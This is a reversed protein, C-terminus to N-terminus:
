LFFQNCHQMGIHLSKWMSFIQYGLFQCLIIINTLFLMLFTFSILSCISNNLLYNEIVLSVKFLMKKHTDGVSATNIIHLHFGSYLQTSIQYQTHGSPLSIKRLTNFHDLNVYVLCTNVWLQRYLCYYIYIREKISHTYIFSM